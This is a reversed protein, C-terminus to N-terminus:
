RVAVAPQAAGAQSNHVERRSARLGHGVRGRTIDDGRVAFNVTVGSDPFLQPWVDIPTARAIRLGKQLAIGTPTMAHEIMELSHERERNIIRRASFQEQGAIAESYFRKIERRVRFTEM